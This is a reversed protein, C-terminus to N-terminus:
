IQCFIFFQRNLVSTIAAFRKGLDKKAKDSLAKYKNIVTQAAVVFCQIKRAENIVGKVFAKAEDGLADVKEIIMNHMKEAKAALEPSKTKM